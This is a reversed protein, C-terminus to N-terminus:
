GTEASREFHLVRHQRSKIFSESLKAKPELPPAPGHVRNHNVARLLHRYLISQAQSPSADVFQVKWREANSEGTPIIGHLDGAFPLHGYRQFDTLAKTEQRIGFDFKFQRAVM